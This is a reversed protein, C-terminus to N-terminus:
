SLLFEALKLCYGYATDLRINEIWGNKLEEDFIIEKEYYHPFGGISMFDKRSYIKNLMPLMYNSNNAITHTLYKNIFDKSSYKIFKKGPGLYMSLSFIKNLNEDGSEIKVDKGLLFKNVSSWDIKEKMKRKHFILEEAKRLSYGSGISSNIVLTTHIPFSGYFRKIYIDIVESCSKSILKDGSNYFYNYVNSIDKESFNKNKFDKELLVLQEGCKSCYADEISIDAGCKKCKAEQKYKPPPEFM